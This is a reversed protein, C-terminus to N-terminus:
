EESDNYEDLDRGYEDINMAETIEKNLTFTAYTKHTCYVCDVMLHLGQPDLNENFDINRWSLDWINPKGCKACTMKLSNGGQTRSYWDM